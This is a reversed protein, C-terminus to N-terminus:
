TNLEGNNQACKRNTNVAINNILTYFLKSTAIYFNSNSTQRFASLFKGLEELMCSSIILTSSSYPLAVLSNVLYQKKVLSYRM